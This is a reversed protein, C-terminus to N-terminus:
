GVGMLLRNTHGSASQYTFMGDGDDGSTQADTNTVVIDATGVTGAPTTCTISTSNVVVVSTASEGDFTVTAGALFGTGTLTVATSGATSGTAPSCSSLTPAPIGFTWGSNNGDDTSTSGAAATVGTNTSRSVSLYALTQTEPVIINWGSVGTGALTLLQGSAGQLTLANTVTQTTGDTFTLTAAAAVTKTLNYFTTSGSITQNTGDLVVTNTGPTFTPSGSRSWNGSVTFAGSPATLEGGSLILAGNVSIDGSRGVFTGASVTLGGNFTHAPSASASCEYSGGDVTVLGTVTVALGNADFTGASQTLSGGVVLPNTSVLLSGGGSHIVNNFTGGIGNVLQSGSAKSFTVTGSGCDFLGNTANWSGELIINHTGASLTGNTLTMTDTLALDDQIAYTGGSGNITLDAFSQGGSTLTQGAGTGKLTVLNSTGAVTFTGTCTWNGTVSAGASSGLSFTGSITIDNSVNLTIVSGSFILTGSIDLVGSVTQTASLTHSHGVPILCVKGSAMTVNNNATSSYIASIGTAGNNNSTNINTGSLSGNDSRLALHDQYVDVGAMTADTSKTVTVAKEADGQLYLTLVAGDAATVNSLTYTGDAGTTTNASSAAGNVSVHVHRGSGIPNIGKDVYVTGSIAFAM